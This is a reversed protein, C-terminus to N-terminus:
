YLSDRIDLEIEEAGVVGGGTGDGDFTEAAEVLVVADALVGGRLFPVELLHLLLVPTEMAM